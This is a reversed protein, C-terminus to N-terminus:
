WDQLFEWTSGSSFGARVVELWATDKMRLELTM